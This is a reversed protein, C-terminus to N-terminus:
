KTQLTLLLLIQANMKWKDINTKCRHLPTYSQQPAVARPIISQGYLTISPNPTRLRVGKEINM